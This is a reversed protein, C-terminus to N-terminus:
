QYGGGPKGAKRRETILLDWVNVTEKQHAPEFFKTKQQAANSFYIMKFLFGSKTAV